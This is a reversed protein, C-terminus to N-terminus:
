LFQIDTVEGLSSLDIDTWEKIIYDQLNDTFRYDALYFHITDTVVSNNLGVIDLRFWDPDDGSVGGFKKCFMDGNKITLATYTSNSVSVMLPETAVTFHITNPLTEYTMFDMPNYSIGFVASTMIQEGAFSSYQNSFDQLTDNIRNSYGYGDWYIYGGGYDTFTNPFEAYVASTFGNTLDAGNWFTDAPLSLDEFNVVQANSAGNLGIALFAVFFM